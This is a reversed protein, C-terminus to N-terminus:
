LHLVLVRFLNSPPFYDSAPSLHSVFIFAAYLNRGKTREEMLREKGGKKRWEEVGGERGGNSGGKKEEERGGKEMAENLAASILYNGM